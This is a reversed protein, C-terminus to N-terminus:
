KFALQKRLYHTPQFSKKSASLASVSLFLLAPAKGVAVSGGRIAKGGTKATSFV